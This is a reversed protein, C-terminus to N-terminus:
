VRRREQMQNNHEENREKEEQFTQQLLYEDIYRDAEDWYGDDDCGDYTPMVPNFFYDM